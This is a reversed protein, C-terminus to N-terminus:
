GRGAAVVVDPAPGVRQRAGFVGQHARGVPRGEHVEGGGLEGAEHALERRAVLQRRDPAVDLDVAVVGVDDGVIRAVVAHLHEVQRAEAAEGAVRDREGRVRHVRPDARRVVDHDVLVGAERVDDAEPVRRAFPRREPQRRRAVQGAEVHEVEGVGGRRGEHRAERVRGGFDAGARGAVRVVRLADDVVPGVGVVRVVFQAEGGVLVHHRDEVHGVLVIDRDDRLCEVRGRRVGVLAPERGVLPEEEGVVFQVFPVPAHRGLPGDHQVEEVEVIRLEGVDVVGAQRRDVM